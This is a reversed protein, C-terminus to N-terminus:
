AHVSQTLSENSVFYIQNAGGSFILGLGVQRCLAVFLTARVAGTTGTYSTSTGGEIHICCLYRYRYLLVPHLLDLMVEIVVTIM